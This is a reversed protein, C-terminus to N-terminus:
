VRPRPAPCDDRYAVRLPQKHAVRLPPRELQRAAVASRQLDADVGVLGYMSAGVMAVGTCLAAVFASRSAISRM